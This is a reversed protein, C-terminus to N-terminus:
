IDGLMARDGLGTFSSKFFRSRKFGKVYNFLHSIFLLALHVLQLAKNTSSPNHQPHLPTPLALFAFATVTGYIPLPSPTTLTDLNYYSQTLQQQTSRPPPLPCSHLRLHPLSTVAPPTPPPPPTTISYPTRYSMAKHLVTLVPLM